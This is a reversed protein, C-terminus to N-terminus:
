YGMRQQLFKQLHWLTGEGLVVIFIFIFVLLGNEHSSICDWSVKMLGKQPHYRWSRSVKGYAGGRLPEVVEVGGCQPSSELVCECRLASLVM